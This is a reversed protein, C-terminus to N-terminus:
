TDSENPPWLLSLDLELEAFPPAHVKGPGEFGALLKWGFGDQELVELTRQIPDLLWAHAIGSRAYIPLKRIRDLRTTSPSLVECIWDPVVTFFPVNLDTLREQRWGALDPVLVDQDFHIEPEHLIWWGGPGNRGRQFPGILDHGLASASFSHSGSPRPSSFLEGDVIEGVRNEPLEYLADYTVPKKTM